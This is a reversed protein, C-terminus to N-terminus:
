PTHSVLDQAMRVLLLTYTFNYAGNICYYLCWQSKRIIEIFYINFYPFIYYFSIGKIQKKTRDPITPVAPQECVTAQENSYCRASWWPWRWLWWFEFKCRGRGCRQTPWWWRRRMRWSWFGSKEWWRLRWRRQWKQRGLIFYLLLIYINIRDVM